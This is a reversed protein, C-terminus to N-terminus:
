ATTTNFISDFPSRYRVTSSRNLLVEEIEEEYEYEDIKELVQTVIIIEKENQLIGKKYTRIRNDIARHVVSDKTSKCSLRERIDTLQKITKEIDNNAQKIGVVGNGMKQRVFTSLPVKSGSLMSNIWDEAIGAIRTMVINAMHDPSEDQIVGQEDYLKRKASDSLVRYALNIENFKEKDGGVDPHHWKSLSRYATKVQQLTADESIDLIEYPNM